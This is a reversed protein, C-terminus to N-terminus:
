QSNLPGQTERNTAHPEQTDNPWDFTLSDGHGPAPKDSIIKNARDAMPTVERPDETTEIIGHARFKEDVVQPVNELTQLRRPQLLFWAM